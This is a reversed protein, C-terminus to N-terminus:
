PVRTVLARWGLLLVGGAIGSVALFGLSSGGHFLPSIRLLHAIPLAFLWAPLTVRLMGGVSATAETTYLGAVLAVAVWALAFPALSDLFRLPYAAPPFGHRIEGAYVFAGLVFLDGAALVGSRLTPEVRV